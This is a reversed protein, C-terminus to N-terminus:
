RGRLWEHMLVVVLPLGWFLMPDYFLNSATEILSWVVLCEM